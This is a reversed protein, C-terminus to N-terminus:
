KKRWKFQINFFRIVIIVRNVKKTRTVLGKKKNSINATKKNRLRMIDTLSKEKKVSRKM